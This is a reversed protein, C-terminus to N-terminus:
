PREPTGTTARWHQVATECNRCMFHGNGLDHLRVLHGEVDHCTSCFPGEEGSEGHIYYVGDDFTLADETALDGRLRDAEAEAERRRRREDDLEDELKRIRVYPDTDGLRPLVRWAAKIGEWLSSM